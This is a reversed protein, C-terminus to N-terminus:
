PAGGLTRLVRAAIDAYRISFYPNTAVADALFRRAADRDGLRLHIMGAHFRFSANPTGLALARASFDAAERYRGNAYLAWALADAVHVSRRREWEARASRLAVRADGHDAEFLAHELDLNVGNTRLLTEEARVLDFSREAAAADGAREYLEGLAIV